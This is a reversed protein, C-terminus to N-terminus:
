LTLEMEASLQRAGKMMWAELSIGQFFQALTPITDLAFYILMEALTRTPLEKSDSARTLSIGFREEALFIGFSNGLLRFFRPDSLELGPRYFWMGLEEYDTPVGGFKRALQELVREQSRVALGSVGQCLPHGSLCERLSPIFGFDEMIHQRAVSETAVSVGDSARNWTQGSIEVCLTIGFTHHLVLRHVNSAICIKSQDFFQHLALYDSAQGGFQRASSHAHYLPHAM